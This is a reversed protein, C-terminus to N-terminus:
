LMITKYNSCDLGSGVYGLIGIILGVGGLFFLGGSFLGM